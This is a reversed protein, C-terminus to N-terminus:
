TGRSPLGPRKGHEAVIRSELRTEMIHLAAHSLL